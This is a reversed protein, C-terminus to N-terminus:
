LRRGTCCDSKEGDTTELVDPITLLCCSLALNIHLDIRPCIGRTTPFDSRFRELLPSLNLAEIRAAGWLPDRFGLVVPISPATKILRLIAPLSCHIRANSTFHLQAVISVEKLCGHASLTFPFVHLDDIWRGTLGYSHSQRNFRYM